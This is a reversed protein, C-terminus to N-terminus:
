STEIPKYLVPKSPAADNEFPSLQINLLYFGDSVSDPVYIFETITRHLQPDDPYNWFRHHAALIGEDSERDVSPLDILLHDVGLELLYDIVGVELYPPNSNSYQRTLKDLTNPLTRILVAKCPNKLVSMVQDKTIILDGSQNIPEVSIVYAAFFFTKLTQNVSEKNSSIHGVSETHTGNGHPNFIINNFNVSGGENVDGVFQENRVPEIKVPPVYWASAANSDTKFPMSVDIPKQLDFEFVTGDFEIQAIMM